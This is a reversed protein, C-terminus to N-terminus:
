LSLNNLFNVLSLGAALIFSLLLFNFDFILLTWWASCLVLVTICAGVCKLPNIPLLLHGSWCFWKVFNCSSHVNCDDQCHVQLLCYDPYVGFPFAHVSVCSTRGKFNGQDHFRPQKWMYVIKVVPVNRSCFCFLNMLYFVAILHSVPLPSVSFLSCAAMWINSAQLFRSKSWTGWLGSAFCDIKRKLIYHHHSNTEM